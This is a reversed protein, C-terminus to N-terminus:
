SIGLIKHTQLSLRWQPHTFCYQMASVTNQKTNTGDVPQLWFYRFDLLEFSEPQAGAQPYLLKLEDGSRVILETQAKPSVTVWDIGEPLACTGNTEIAVEFDREHLAEIFDRDVQLAPEGGTLVVFPNAVGSVNGPFLRAIACALEHAGDFVGGNPGTTDTFDTDCFKCIADPRDSEKGSWLNCGSFRCFVAPRGTHLGEGQLTYFIEKVIYAM